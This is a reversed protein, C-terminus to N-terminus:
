PTVKSGDTALKADALTKAVQARETSVRDAMADGDLFPSVRTYLTHAHALDSDGRQLMDQMQGVDHVRQASALLREGRRRYADALDKQRRRGPRFGNSQSLNLESEANELDGDQMDIQALGLHPDPSSKPLLTLAEEFDERATRLYPRPRHLLNLYGAAVKSKGRIAKDEPALAIADNLAAAARQWDGLTVPTSQSEERYDAMVRDAEAVYRERLSNRVPYLPLSFWSQNALARYHEAGDELSLRGSDIQRAVANANGLMRFAYVVMFVAVLFLAVLVGAAVRAATKPL